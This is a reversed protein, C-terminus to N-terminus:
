ELEHFHRFFSFLFSKCVCSGKVIRTYSVEKWGVRANILAINQEILRIKAAIREKQTEDKENRYLDKNSSLKERYLELRQLQNYYGYDGWGAM